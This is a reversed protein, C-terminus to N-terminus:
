GKSFSSVGSAEPLQSIVQGYISFGRLHCIPLPLFGFTFDPSSEKSARQFPSRSNSKGGAFSTPPSSLKALSDAVKLGFFFVSLPIATM